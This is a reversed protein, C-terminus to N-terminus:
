GGQKDKSENEQPTNQSHTQKELQLSLFTIMKVKLQILSLKSKFITLPM